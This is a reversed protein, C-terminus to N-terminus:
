EARAGRQKSHEETAVVTCQSPGHYGKTQVNWYGKNESTVGLIYIYNSQNQRSKLHDEAPACSNHELQHPPDWRQIQTLNPQPTYGLPQNTPQPNLVMDTLVLASSSEDQELPVALRGMHPSQSAQGSARGPISGPDGAYFDLHM